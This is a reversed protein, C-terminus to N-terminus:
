MMRACRQVGEGGTPGVLGHDASVSPRNRAPEVRGLQRAHQRVLDAVHAVFSRATMPRASTMVRKVGHQGVHCQKEGEEM